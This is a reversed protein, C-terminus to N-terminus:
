STLAMVFMNLFRVTVDNNATSSRGYLEIYDNTAMELMLHIATSNATGGLDLEVTGGQSTTIAGNKFVTFSVNASKSDIASITFATHMMRTKTGTYTIKGDSSNSFNVAMTSVIGTLTIKYDTNIAAMSTVTSM